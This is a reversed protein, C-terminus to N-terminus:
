KVQEKGEPIFKLEFIVESTANNQYTQYRQVEFPIENEERLKAITRNYLDEENRELYLYVKKGSSFVQQVNFKEGWYKFTNDWTSYIYSNPYLKGLVPAYEERKKHSAWVSSYMLTYEIFPCGYNQSTIIKYSDKELSQAMQWTGMRNKVDNGMAETKMPLWQRNFDINWCILVVIGLSVLYTTVKSPYIKKILEAATIVMLPSLMLVPIFYRHAYHKGVLLMQVSITIIIAIALMVIKKESKKRYRALYVTLVLTLGILIYFFRREYGYLEKLNTSLAAFDIFNSDGTGYTGSHVVLNKVWGWFIHIQLTVPFAIIFFLLISFLIYFLKKKWGDIVMFPIFWLPLYNLKITLGFASLLSFLIVQKWPNQQQPSYYIHIIFVTLLIVPFPMMLEPAIRGILDYWIVPLFPATQVLLAYFVSRTSLFIRYGAYLLLGTTLATIFLNTVALYLDPHLLVDELYPVPTSRILYILKFAFAVLIQLPTGPNDFHGLKLDGDSLTLGSMFYIYEPDCSRLSLDGLLNRFYAGLIFYIAPFFFLLINQFQFPQPKNM